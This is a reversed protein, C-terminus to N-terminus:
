QQYKTEFVKMFRSLAEVGEYPMANYISARMGGVSRHGKLAVLGNDKAEKLFTENLSENKLFFTVNMKSRNELHVRSEYLRSNDITRYLLEAKKNNEIEIKEVGGQSLLWDFVLKSLYIAFTPPTNFMSEKEATVKYNLLSPINSPSRKLLANNIIVIGMGSPGINKQAGAYILDYDEINIRRSLINSSMDAVIVQNGNLRLANPSEFIEIGDVTENPCYHLFDSKNPISWDSMPKVRKLGNEIVTCQQERADIFKNAEDVADASWAGTTYYSGVNGLTLNMPVAAFQGRGGGQMFLISYNDPVNLLQKLGSVASKYVDIFESSRHSMEIVSCGTEQWNLFEAQAKKMVDKPLTAPGACFNYVTM